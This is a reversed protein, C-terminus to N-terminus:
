QQAQLKVNILLSNEIEIINLKIILLQCMLM